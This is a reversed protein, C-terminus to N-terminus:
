AEGVNIDRGLDYESMGTVLIIQMDVRFQQNAAFGDGFFGITEGANLHPASYRGEVIQVPAVISNLPLFFVVEFSNSGVCVMEGAKLPNAPSFGPASISIRHLWGEVSLPCTYIQLPEQNPTTLGGAVNGNADAQILKTVKIPTSTRIQRILEKQTPLILNKIAQVAQQIPSMAGPSHPITEDVLREPHFTDSGPGTMTM